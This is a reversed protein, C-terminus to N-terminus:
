YRRGKVQAFSQPYVLNDATGSLAHLVWRIVWYSGGGKLRWIGIWGQILKPVRVVQEFQAEFFPHRSIRCRKSTNEDLFRVDFQGINFQQSSFGGPVLFKAAGAPTYNKVQTRASTSKWVTETRLSECVDLIVATTHIKVQTRESM